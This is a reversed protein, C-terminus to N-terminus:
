KYFQKFAEVIKNDIYLSHKYEISLKYDTDWYTDATWSIEPYGIDNYGYDIYDDLHYDTVSKNIETKRIEVQMLVRELNSFSKTKM